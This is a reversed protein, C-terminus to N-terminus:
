WTYGRREFARRLRKALDRPDRLDAAFVFEVIWGRRRLDDAREADQATREAHVAYGQHELVIRLEPWALDLLRLPHGWPSLLPWNLEPRPFGLEVVTLLLHSEAPSGARGTALDLLNAGRRTGRRDAREAIRHMLRAKVRRREEDQQQQALAQDAVALADPPPVRRDCLVDVVVRELVLVPVGEVETIDEAPPAGRHVVLGNRGRGSTGIPVLAHTLPGAAATCGWLEAASTGCAVAGPGFAMTAAACRTWIDLVRHGDVVIHAWPARLRGDSLAARLGWPRLQALADTRLYAGHLGGTLPQMHPITRM